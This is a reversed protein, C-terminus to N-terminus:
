HVGLWSQYIRKQLDNPHEVPTLAYTAYPYSAPKVTIERLNGSRVITFKLAEGPKASGVATAFDDETVALGNIAVVLDGSTLGYSEAPGGPILSAIEAKGGDGKKHSLGIWPRQPNMKKDVHIGGLTFYTEYPLPEKGSAYRRFFDSMDKGTIESAARVAEGPEFGPKPLAYRQYLLRMWDDLTKQNNTAERIAFDLLHGLVQGGDYYSYNTNNLNTAMQGRSSGGVFWTDWSTDEISREHRGTEAEFSSILQAISDLYAQPSELGAREVALEGYYSTLGESIWLSPTYVERTYDFPGLPRPRLRKVNWAHYFEHATVFLKLTYDSGYRAGGAGLQNTPVMSSWDSPFNIQTSNLHELGGLSEPAIHFLFWYHAFPAAHRGTAGPYMPVVTEVLRKTDETFKTFDTHGMEDHVVVHYTTGLTTFTREAFDGIELPADVFTDYDPSAFTTDDIREMGTAVRWGSPANIKVQVALQKAGVFYMWLAPGSIHAHHEDYQITTDSLTDGFVKYHIVAEHADGLEIRWTQKDIKHWPLSPGKTSAASFEQVNKAYDVIRYAGPSWAPLSFDATATTIGTVKIVVELLHTNPKGFRLEYQVTATASAQAIAAAPACTLLLFTWSYNGRM